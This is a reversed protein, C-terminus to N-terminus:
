IHVYHIKIRDVELEKQYYRGSWSGCELRRGAEQGKRKLCGGVYPTTMWQLTTLRGPGCGHLLYDEEALLWWSDTTGWSPTPSIVRGTEMTVHQCIAKDETPRTYAVVAATPEPTCCNYRTWFVNTWKQRRQGRARVIKGGVRRYHDRSTHHRHGMQPQARWPCKNEATQGDQTAKNALDERQPSRILNQDTIRLFSYEARHM